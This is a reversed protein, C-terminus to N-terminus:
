YTNTTYIQFLRWNCIRSATYDKMQHHIDDNAFDGKTLPSVTSRTKVKGKESLVYYALGQGVNHASGLWRGLQKKYIGLLLGM